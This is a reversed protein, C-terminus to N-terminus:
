QGDGWRRLVIVTTYTAFRQNQSLNQVVSEQTFRPLGRTEFFQRLLPRKRSLM